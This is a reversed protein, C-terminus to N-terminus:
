LNSNKIISEITYDFIKNILDRGYISAIMEEKEEITLGSKKGRRKELIALMCEYMWKENDPPLNAKNNDM